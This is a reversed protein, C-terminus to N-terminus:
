FGDEERKEAQHPISMQKQVDRLASRLGELITPHYFPTDLLEKVSLENTVAVALIHAVYEADPGVMCAGLIKDTEKCAYIHLLGCNVGMIRSRGQNDFSVKGTVHTRESREIEPLSMGVNAIQPECFVIGLPIAPPRIYAGVNDRCVESGASFGEDSAVHLLPLHANADGVIYLQLDGIQGTNINLNKPRNKDDLEVGLNEIGLQNINNRRGTAVLVCEGQWQQSQGASDKYDIFASPAENDANTQTGVDIIKSDLQMTLEHGLCEIAKQNIDEDRLGGVRNVRNFLTVDVGLRTFAQALELGIAGAGVVAISAPLDTLEFVTDSTILTKGLKDVWGEPVFPSIGTAVIIKDAAILEDNVEILGEKNIYARGSIKKDEPWSEVQRKVFGAFRDREAQVRSMVQKGDIQVDAHVGFEKSSKAEHARAAAAILLKSPMCGITACITTWIGDNIIVINETTKQAQRFANQGATGAGIVAVSVKRTTKESTNTSANNSKQNM